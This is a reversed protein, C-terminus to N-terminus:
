GTLRVPRARPYGIPLLFTGRTTKYLVQWWYYGYFARPDSRMERAYAEVARVYWRTPNYHFLAGSMDRHAGNAVLFRAAAMISDRQSEISGHGYEAFTAPMFQMPGQAGASSLGHIRGMRTEVLEIAALYQWPIRYRAAAARYYGLLAAAKPPSVIRWHPFRRTRPVIHGLAGAARVATLAAARARANALQPLTARRLSPREALERFALQQAKAATAVTTPSASADEITAQERDVAAALTSPASVPRTPTTAKAGSGVGCGVLAAGLVLIFIAM